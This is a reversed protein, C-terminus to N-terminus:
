GKDFAMDSAVGEWVPRMADAFPPTNGEADITKDALMAQWRIGIIDGAQNCAASAVRAGAAVLGRAFWECTDFDGQYLLKRGETDAMNFTDVQFVNAIGAQYVLVARRM